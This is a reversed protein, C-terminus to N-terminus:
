NIRASFKILFQDNFGLHLGDHVIKIIFNLCLDIAIKLLNRLNDINNGIIKIVSSKTESKHNVVVHRNRADIRQPIVSVKKENQEKIKEIHQGCGSSNWGSRSGKTSFAQSNESQLTGKIRTVASRPADMFNNHPSKKPAKLPYEDIFGWSMWTHIRCYLWPFSIIEAPCGLSDKM